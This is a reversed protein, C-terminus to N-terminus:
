EVKKSYRLKLAKELDEDFSDDFGFSYLIWRDNPKYLKFTLLLPQSDFKLFYRYISFCDTSELKDVFVYGYYKGVLGENYGALKTKLDDVKDQIKTTWVNTKYLEDVAVMAGKKEFDNFFKDILSQATLQGFAHFNSGTILLLCVVTKILLKMDYFKFNILRNVKM